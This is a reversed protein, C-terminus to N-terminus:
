RKTSAEAGDPFNKQIFAEREEARKQQEEHARVPSGGVKMERRLNREEKMVNLRRRISELSERAKASRPDNTVNREAAAARRELELEAKLEELDAKMQERALRLEGLNDRAITLTQRKAALEKEMAALRRTTIMHSDVSSDFESKLEARAWNRSEYSVQAGQAKLAVQMAAIRQKDAAGMGMGMGM